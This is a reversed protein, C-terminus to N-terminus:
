RNGGVVLTVTGTFGTGTRALQAELPRARAGSRVETLWDRLANTGVGNLTLVARDAQLTLKAKDGLRETAAKLAAASQEPTIQPAARLEAAEAALRQMDQLQADLAALQAPADRVTRWAPRVAVVFVVFLVLVTAAIGVLAREREGLAKWWASVPAVWARWGAVAAPSSSPGLAADM